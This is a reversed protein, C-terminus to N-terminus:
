DLWTTKEDISHRRSTPWDGEPFGLYFIGLWRDKPGLGLFAKAEDLYIVKPTNWFAGLGLSAATLYMNQVACAVAEVEEIEPIREIEQRKMAITIIVPALLPRETLNDLKRQNFDDPPTTKRYLDSLFDALEQRSEGRIVSFRWPETRGHTPAWNANELITRIAHESVPDPLMAQPKVTRRHHILKSLNDVDM